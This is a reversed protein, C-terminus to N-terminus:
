KNNRKHQISIASAKMKFGYGEHTDPMLCVNGILWPHRAINEAQCIAGAEPNNCWSLINGALRKM